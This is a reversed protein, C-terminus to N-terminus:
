RFVDAGSHVTTWLATPEDADAIDVILQWLTKLAPAGDVDVVQGVWSTISRMEPPWLVAFAIIDGRVFGTIPGTLSRRDAGAAAAYTGSVQHGDVRIDAVSGYENTWRGACPSADTSPAHGAPPAGKAWLTLVQELNM